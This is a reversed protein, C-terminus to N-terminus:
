RQWYKDHEPCVYGTENCRNCPVRSVGGWISGEGRCTECEVTMRPCKECEPGEDSAM